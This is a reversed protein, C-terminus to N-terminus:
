PGAVAVAIEDASVYKQAAAQVRQPTVENVMDTYRLLYDLGLNYLEMDTLIGALGDNTELSVPLSGTLYAKSDEVEDVPVLADQLRQIQQRISEIAQEVKDPAVGTGAVWPSPGLSSHLSSYVYYALGQEERVTKGLRGSMGFVGLITNALRIDQYDSVSRRPGPLGLVIDSQTKGPMRVHTRALEAPRPADPVAPLHAQSPHTWDGLVRQVKAAAEGAKVAGVVTVIMQRPGYYAAHFAALDDRKLSTITEPTGSLHSGYPHDGYLLAHFAKSAQRRTDNAQIQLGTLIEGRVKEIQEAPFSPYRLAGAALTLILDIDEALSSGSFGTTYRGASFGLEAGVSELEDYITEFSRSRTGRMLCNAVFAALGAQARSEGLGGAWVLGEVEVSEAAFNEYALVVIGNDLQYRHITEPGPYNNAAM